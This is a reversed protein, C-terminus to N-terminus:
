FSDFDELVSLSAVTSDSKIMECYHVDPIPYGSRSGFENIDSVLFVKCPHKKKYTNLTDQAMRKTRESQETCSRILFYLFVLQPNMELLQKLPGASFNDTETCILVIRELKKSKILCLNEILKDLPIRHNEYRFDKLSSASSIAKCLNFNLEENRHLSFIKLKQLNQCKQLVQILFSGDINIPIEVILSELHEFLSILSYGLVAPNCVYVELHELGPFNKFINEAPYTHVCDEGSIDKRSSSRPDRNSLLICIMVCLKKVRTSCPSKLIDEVAETYRSDCDLGYGSHYFNLEEFFITDLTCENLFLRRADKPGYPTAYFLEDLVAWSGSRSVIKFMKTSMKGYCTVCPQRPRNDYYTTLLHENFSIFHPARVQCFIKSKRGVDFCFPFFEQGPPEADIWLKRLQPFITKFIDRHVFYTLRAFSIYLTEVTPMRHRHLEHDDNVSIGLKKIKLKSFDETDLSALSLTTQIAYLVELNVMRTVFRRLKDAPIWYICNINLTTVCEFAIKKSIQSLDELEYRKSLDIKRIVNRDQLFYDCQYADCFNLLTIANIGSLIKILIENPLSYFYSNKFSESM